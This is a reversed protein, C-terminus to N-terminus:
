APKAEAAKKKEDKDDGLIAGIQKYKDTKDAILKAIAVFPVFLIMGAAGWIIGGLFIALLTFLMNIRVRNSVAIPFILNAELFQVFTFIAAVGLPYYISDHLAWATVMPMISSITIGVYPIFTMISASFGFIFAHPIGLLLLGVSNLIGVVLYVILMGKVYNYYTIVTEHLITKVRSPEASPTLYQAFAVLRERQYLILAAYIPVMVVQVLTTMSVVVGTYVQSTNKFLLTNIWDTKETPIATNATTSDKFWPILRAKEVIIDWNRSIEVVQMVLVYGVGILPITLLIMSLTIAASRPIRKQEFWKCIPYLIFSILVAFFLPVFMIKGFYMIALVIMAIIVGKYLGNKGSTAEDTIDPMMNKMIWCLHYSGNVPQSILTM